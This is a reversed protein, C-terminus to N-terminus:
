TKQTSSYVISKNQIDTKGARFNSKTHTPHHSIFFYILIQNLTVVKQIYPIDLVIKWCFGDFFGRSVQLPLTLLTNKMLILVSLQSRCGVGVWLLSMCGNIFFLEDCLLHIINLILILNISVAMYSNLSNPNAWKYTAFNDRSRRWCGVFDNFHIGLYRYVSSTLFHVM